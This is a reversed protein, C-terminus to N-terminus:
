DLTSSTCQFNGSPFMNECVLHSLCILTIDSSIQWLDFVFQLLVFKVGLVLFLYTFMGVM